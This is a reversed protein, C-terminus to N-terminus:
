ANWSLHCLAYLGEIPPRAQKLFLQRVPLSCNASARTTAFIPTRVFNDSSSLFSSTLYSWFPLLYAMLTLPSIFPAYPYCGISHSQETAAVDRMAGLRSPRFTWRGSKLCVTLSRCFSDILCMLNCMPQSHLSSM